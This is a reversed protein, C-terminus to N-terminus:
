CQNPSMNTKMKRKRVAEMGRMIMMCSMALKNDLSTYANVEKVHGLM